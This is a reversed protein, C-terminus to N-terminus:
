ETIEMGLYEDVIGRFWAAQRVTMRFKGKRYAASNRMHQVFKAEGKNLECCTPDLLRGALTRVAEASWSADFEPKNDPKATEVARDRYVVKDRYIVKERYEVQVVPPKDLAAVLDHLDAGASQLSRQIARATAVVEGDHDSALRPILKGIKIIADPSLM